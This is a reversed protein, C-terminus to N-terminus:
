KITFYNNVAADAIKKVRPSAEANAAKKLALMASRNGIANIAAVAMLRYQEDEHNKFVDLLGPIADNLKVKDKHNSAFYIINQLEGVSVESSPKDISHSLQRGLLNWWSAKHTVDNNEVYQNILPEHTNVSVQALGTLPMISFLVAIIATNKLVHKKMVIFRM